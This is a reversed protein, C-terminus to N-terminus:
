ELREFTHKTDNSFSLIQKTVAFRNALLWGSTDLIGLKGKLESKNTM